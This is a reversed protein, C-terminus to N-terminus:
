IEKVSSVFKGFSGASKPSSPRWDGLGCYVGGVQLISELIETNIIDDLLVTITGQLVWNDFRPRVRVHKATGIKARKVFLEFGMAEITELHRNFDTESILAKIPAFPIEKGGILVPWASQDVILGSQTYRGFTEQGKGTSVKKGGERLVTMLNDAPMVVRGAEVYLNGIWRHAPTRDDGAVSLKKNAPDLRWKNMAEAWALNDQHMLLPTEGTLTVAYRKM